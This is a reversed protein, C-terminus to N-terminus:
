LPRRPDDKKVGLKDLIGNIINIRFTAMEKEYDIPIIGLMGTADKGLANISNKAINWPGWHKQKVALGLVKNGEYSYEPTAKLLKYYSDKQISVGTTPDIVEGAREVWAHSFTKGLANTVKGHVVDGGNEAAEKAALRYCDGSINAM